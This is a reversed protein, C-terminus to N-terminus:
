LKSIWIPIANPDSDSPSHGTIFMTWLERSVHKADSEHLRRGPTCMVRLDMLLRALDHLMDHAEANRPPIRALAHTIANALAEFQGHLRRNIDEGGLIQTYVLDWRTQTKGVPTEFHGQFGEPNKAAKFDGFSYEGAADLLIFLLKIRIDEYARMLQERVLSRTKREPIEVMLLWFVISIFLGGALNFIITNGIHLSYLPAELFTGELVTPLKEESGAVTAALTAALLMGISMNRKSYEAM